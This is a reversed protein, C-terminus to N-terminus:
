ISRFVTVVIVLGVLSVRWPMSHQLGQCKWTSESSRLPLWRCASWRRPYMPSRAHTYGSWMIICNRWDNSMSGMSPAVLWFHAMATTGNAARGLLNTGGDASKPLAPQGTTPVWGRLSNKTATRSSYMADVRVLTVFYLRILMPGYVRSTGIASPYQKFMWRWGGDGLIRLPFYSFDIVHLCRHLCDFDNVPMLDCYFFYYSLYVIRCCSFFKVWNLTSDHIITSIISQFSNYQPSLGYFRTLRDWSLRTWLTRSRKLDYTCASKM